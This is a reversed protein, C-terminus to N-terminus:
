VGKVAMMLIAIDSVRLGSIRQAQGISLPRVLKLKERSEGSLGKLADYDFDPPIAMAEAREFRAIELEQRRLYGEYKVDLEVERRVARSAALPPVLHEHVAGPM